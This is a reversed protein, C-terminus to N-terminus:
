NSQFSMYKSITILRSNLVLKEQINEINIIMSVKIIQTLFMIIEISLSNWKDYRWLFTLLEFHWKFNGGLNWIVKKRKVNMRNEVNNESGFGPFEFIM